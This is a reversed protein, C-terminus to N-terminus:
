INYIRQVVVPEVSDFVTSSHQRPPRDTFLYHEYPMMHVPGLPPEPIPNVPMGIESLLLDRFRGFTQNMATVMDTTHAYGVPPITQREEEQVNDTQPQRKKALRQGYSYLHVFRWTSLIILLLGFVLVATSVNRARTFQYETPPPTDNKKTRNKSTDRAQSIRSYLFLSYRVLSVGLGSICGSRAGHTSYLFFTVLFGIFQFTSSIVFNWVFGTISGVPLEDIVLSHVPGVNESEPTWSSSDAVLPHASPFFTTEWYPPACDAAATEYNPPLTNDAIDDDDGRDNPDRDVRPRDPKANLNSFVGDEVTGGGVRTPLAQERGVTSYLTGPIRMGVINGFNGLALRIRDIVAAARQFRPQPYRAGDNEASEVDFVVSSGADNREYSSNNYQHPDGASDSREGGPVRAYQSMLTHLRHSSERKSGMNPVTFKTAVSM